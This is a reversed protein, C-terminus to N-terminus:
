TLHRFRYGDVNIEIEALGTLVAARYLSAPGFGDQLRIGTLWGVQIELAAAAALDAQGGARKPRHLTKSYPHLTGVIATEVAPLFDEERSEVDCCSSAWIM